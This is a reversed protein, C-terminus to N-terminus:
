TIVTVEDKSFIKFIDILIILKNNLKVIGNIYNKDSNSDSIIGPSTDIDNQAIALTNPVDKVLVGVKLEDSEIVLTYNQTYDSSSQQEKEELDFKQELDVIALINGRINAVGKIHPASLPVKTINPTIVVEKIQDIPLGYEETGLKFVIIQMNKYGDKTNGESHPLSTINQEKLIIAM